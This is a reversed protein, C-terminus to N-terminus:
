FIAFCNRLGFLVRINEEQGFFGKNPFPYFTLYTGAYSLNNKRLYYTFPRIQQSM